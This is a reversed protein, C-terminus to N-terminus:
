SIASSRSTSSHLGWSDSSGSCDAVVSAAAVVIGCVVDGAVASGVVAAGDVSGGTVSGGTVSGALVAGGVVVTGTAVVTGAVVPGGAVSGFAVVASVPGNTSNSMMSRGARNLENGPNVSAGGDASNSASNMSVTADSSIRFMAISSIPTAVIRSSVPSSTAIRTTPKAISGVRPM